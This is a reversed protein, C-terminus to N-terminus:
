TLKQLQFLPDLKMTKCTSIWNDWFQKNFVSVKGYQIQRPVKTLFLQRYIHSNIEPSEFRNWPDIDRKELVVSNSVTTYLLSQCWTTHIIRVQEKELNKRSNQTGPIEAHAKPDTHIEAFFLSHNKYLNFQIYLHIQPTNGNKCYWTNQDM